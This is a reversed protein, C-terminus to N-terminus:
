SSFRQLIVFIKTAVHGFTCVNLPHLYNQFACYNVVSLQVRPVVRQARYHSHPLSRRDGPSLLASAGQSFTITKRGVKEDKSLCLEADKRQLHQRSDKIEEEECRDTESM